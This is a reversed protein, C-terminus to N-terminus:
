NPLETALQPNIPTQTPPFPTTTTPILDEFRSIPMPPSPITATSSSPTTQTPTTDTSTHTENLVKDITDFAEVIKQLHLQAIHAAEPYATQVHEKIIPSQFLPDHRM